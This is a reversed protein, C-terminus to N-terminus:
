RGGIAEFIIVETTDPTDIQVGYCGASPVFMSTPWFSWRSADDRERAPAQLELGDSLKEGGSFRLKERSGNLLQGRILIPGAYEAKSVWPTKARYAHEDYPIKDLRFRAEDTSQDSWALAMFVPGKGYWFCGSCFIYDVRPVSDHSGHSVPCREGSSVTPLNLPRRKLQDLAVSDRMSCAADNGRGVRSGFIVLACVFAVLMAVFTWYLRKM